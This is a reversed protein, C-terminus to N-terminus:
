WRRGDNWDGRRGDRWREGDYRRYGDDRYHRHRSYGDDHYRGYGVPVVACGGLLAAALALALIRKM